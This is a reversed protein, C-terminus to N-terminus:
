DRRGALARDVLGVLRPLAGRNEEVVERAADVLSRRKHKDTLLEFVAQALAQADEVARLGGALSLQRNIQEFNYTYPGVIVPRGLAVPEVPNHGGHMMLSGGVFAADAAGYLIMLEGLTDGVLVDTGSDASQGASRRVVRYGRAECLATVKAFREPPRPVLLRGAPPARARVAQHADLVLAEEGEHTSAAIWVPRDAGMQRRLAQGRQLVEPTAEVDVKIDGVCEVAKAGLAEFRRADERGRAAVLTVRRLTARTLGGALRYWAAARDSLRANAIVVPIRRRSCYYFLNPWLETEMIVAVRPQVRELFRRVAGPLDYPLYVHEVEEGFLRSVQQSGSPTVTTILMAHDPYRRQLRRVLPEAATVEGLSVAHVWLRPKAALPAFLGLRERWRMRYEPLVRSRWLLRLLVFPVLLYLILSYALRM